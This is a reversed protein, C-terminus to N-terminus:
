WVMHVRNKCVNCAAEFDPIDYHGHNLCQTDENWCTWATWTENKKDRAVVMYLHDDEPHNSGRIVYEVKYKQLHEKGRFYKGINDLVEFPVRNINNLVFGGDFRQKWNRYIGNTDRFECELGDDGFDDQYTIEAIKANIYKKLERDPVHITDGVMLIRKGNKTIM